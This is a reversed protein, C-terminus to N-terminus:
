PSYEPGVGAQACKGTKPNRLFGSPCPGENKTTKKSGDERYTTAM